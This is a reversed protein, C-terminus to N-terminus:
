SVVSRPQVIRALENKQWRHREQAPRSRARDDKGKQEFPTAQVKAVPNKIVNQAGGFTVSLFSLVKALIRHESATHLIRVVPWVLAFRKSEDLTVQAAPTDEASDL